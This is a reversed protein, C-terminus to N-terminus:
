GDLLDAAAQLLMPKMARFRADTVERGSIPIGVVLGRILSITADILAPFRPDEAEEPFLAAATAIFISGLRQELDRLTAALEPESWAAIWLQVVALAEPSTFQRWAQDLVEDRRDPRQLGSLDIRDLADDALRMALHTVTEALFAERTPFYHMLTSQAVGAREAVARTTLGAYGDDMLCQATAELLSLRTAARQQARTLRVEPQGNM